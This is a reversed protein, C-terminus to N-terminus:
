QYYSPGNFQITRYEGAPKDVWRLLIQFLNAGHLIKIILWKRASFIGHNLQFLPTTLEDLHSM